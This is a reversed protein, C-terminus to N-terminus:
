TELHKNIINGINDYCYIITKDLAKNSKYNISHLLQEQTLFWSDEDIGKDFIM